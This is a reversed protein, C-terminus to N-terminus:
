IPKHLLYRILTPLYTLFVGFVDSTMHSHERVMEELEEEDPFQGLSRMVAGLESADITGDGDKDFMRFCEMFEELQKKTLKQGFVFPRVPIIHKCTGCTTSKKNPYHPHFFIQEGNPGILMEPILPASGPKPAGPPKKLEEAYIM